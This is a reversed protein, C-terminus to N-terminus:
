AGGELAVFPAWYFPHRGDLDHTTGSTEDLAIAARAAEPALASSAGSLYARQAASLAHRPALGGTALAGYFLQMFDATSTDAVPWLTAVVSGAGEAQAVAAFSELERGDAGPGGFGTECASLTLLGVESFDLDIGFGQKIDRISLQGGDGLLLFSSVETEALKFHSALHLIGAGQDFVLSAALRDRTFADDLSPAGPFLAGAGVLRELESRVGPLPAFGGHARTTGFAAMGTSTATDYPVARAETVSVIDHRQVLFGAGDHLAAFPVYRLRRDPSVVLTEVGAAAIEARMQAPLLLDHLSRALPLPDRAPDRLVARLAAIRANLAEETFPEGDLTDWTFVQESVPTTLVAGMRGPLVVYHIAAAKGDFSARLMAKVSKGGDLAEARAARGAARARVLLAEAAAERASRAEALAANLDTLRAQGAQDLTGDRQAVLLARRERAQATVTPRLTDAVDRVVKAEDTGLLLTDLSDGRYTDDRSVFEFTEFSKLMQLVATAEAPRDQAIFLDALWRYHNAVSDRFCMQLQEPLGRLRARLTQLQNVAEKALALALDREGLKHLRESALSYSCVEGMASHLPGLRIATVEHRALDAGLATLELQAATRPNGAVRELNALRRAATTIGRLAGHDQAAELRARAAARDGSQAAIPARLAEARTLDLLAGAAGDGRQALDGLLGSLAQWDPAQPTASLKRAARTLASGTIELVADGPGDFAPVRAVGRIAARAGDWDGYFALVRALAFSASSPKFRYAWVDGGTDPPNANIAHEAASAERLWSLGFELLDASAKGPLAGLAAEAMFGHCEGNGPAEPPCEARLATELAGRSPARLMLGTLSADALTAIEDGTNALDPRAALLRLLPRIGPKGAIRYWRAAEAPDQEAGPTRGMYGEALALALNASNWAYGDKAMKASKQRVDDLVPALTGGADFAEPYRRLLALLPAGSGAVFADSDLGLATRLWAATDTASAPARNGLALETLRMAAAPEGAKAAARYQALADTLDPAGAMGGEAALGLRFRAYSSGKDAAIALHSLGLPIDQGRATNGELLLVGVGANATASGDRQLLESAQPSAQAADALAVAARLTTMDVAFGPYAGGITLRTDGYPPLFPAPPYGDRALLTRVRTVPDQPIPADDSHREPLSTQVESILDGSTLGPVLGGAIARLIAHSEPADYADGVGAQLLLWGGLEPRRPLGGNGTVLDAALPKLVDVPTPAGDRPAVDMEGKGDPAQLIVAFAKAIDRAQPGTLDPMAAIAAEFMPRALLPAGGADERLMDARCIPWLAALVDKAAAPSAQAVGALAWGVETSGIADSRYSSGCQVLLRTAFSLDARTGRCLQGDQLGALLSGVAGPTPVGSDSVPGIPADAASAATNWAKRSGPGFLGDATGANCGHLNLAVQAVSAHAQYYARRTEQREMLNKLGARAIRGLPVCTEPRGNKLNRIIFRTETRNAALVREVFEPGNNARELYGGGLVYDKLTINAKNAMEEVPASRYASLLAVVMDLTPRIVNEGCVSGKIAARTEDVLPTQQAAATQATLCAALGAAFALTRIM